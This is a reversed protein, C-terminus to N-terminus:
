IMAYRAGEISQLKMRVKDFERRKKPTAAAFNPFFHVRSGEFRIDKLRRAADMVWQRDSFNHFRVIMGRPFRSAAPGQLRHARQLKIRGAKTNLQLIEPIWTEMFITATTGELKQPLGVIRLNKRRSSNEYDHLRETLESSTKELARLRKETDASGNEVVLIRQKAEGVRETVEKLSQSINRAMKDLKEDM